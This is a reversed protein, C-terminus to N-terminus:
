FHVELTFTTTLEALVAALQDQETLPLSFEQLQPNGKSSSQTDTFSGPRSCVENRIEAFCVRPLLSVAPHKKRIKEM